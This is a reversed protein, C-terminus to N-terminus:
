RSSRSTAPAHDARVTVGGAVMLNVLFAVTAPPADHRGDLLGDLWGPSVIGTGRLPALADPSDRWAAVVLPALEAAGLQPRRVGVLRQRVKGLAKRAKVGAAAHAGVVPRGLRSPVLGSDLPIAALAPDLHRMLRGSLRSDRKDAPRVALVLLLLERDLLPNVFHRRVAAPTGHAGAWRQTRQWLYFEDTARLWDRSYGGFEHNLKDLTQARAGAAFDPDLAAPDVAENTFLRWGALREVLRPTVTGHPQGPYYFGRATEGGIGSLRHGQELSQEALLLPALAMPSAAADLARAAEVALQYATSVDIPPQRDLWHVHHDIGLLQSLRQAVRVDAAGDTGLTMARLSGRLEPPVSCLLIRSDQGGTLQLVTGPHDSLYTGHIERLIAAIREVAEDPRLASGDFTGPGDVYRQVSVRGARLVAASGPALKTVGSFATDLGLQWGILSQAQLAPVDLAAGSLAALVLASTSVAAVGDGQWWYLQRLGLWDTVAVLPNGAGPWHVAAFPPLLGALRVGDPRDALAAALEEPGVDGSRSRVSRTLAATFGGDLPHPAGGRDAGAQEALDPSLAIWGDAHRHVVSGAGLEEVAQRGTGHGPDLVGAPTPNGAVSVALFATMLPAFPDPASM